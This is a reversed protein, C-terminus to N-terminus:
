KPNNVYLDYIGAIVTAEFTLLLILGAEVSIAFSIFISSILVSLHLLSTKPNEGKLIMKISIPFMEFCGKFYIDRVQHYDSPSYERIQIENKQSM